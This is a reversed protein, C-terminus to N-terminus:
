RPSPFACGCWVFLGELVPFSSEKLLTGRTNFCTNYVFYKKLRHLGTKVKLDKGVFRAESEDILFMIRM